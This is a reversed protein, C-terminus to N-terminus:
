RILRIEAPDMESSLVKLFWKLPKSVIKLIRLYCYTNKFSLLFKIEKRRKRKSLAALVNSVKFVLVFIVVTIKFAKMFVNM